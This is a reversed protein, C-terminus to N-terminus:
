VPVEALWGFGEPGVGFRRGAAEVLERIREVVGGAFHPDHWAAFGRHESIRLAADRTTAGRCKTRRTHFPDGILDADTSELALAALADPNCPLLPALTAHVAIGAERLTRMAALREGVPACLPEYLKRVHESDTTLSFSVRLLTRRALERLLDLDRLILPGRTQIVFVRPPCAILEAFLGPMQRREAEPPQYPDVLPSCYIRQEPRLERRLLDAANQKFTTFQGWQLWDERKLGGYVRMTPVYCYTCGFTCNRAPTLSHTFGAQAIFGSVASLISRAPAEYVPVAM